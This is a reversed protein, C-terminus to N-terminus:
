YNRNAQNNKRPSIPTVMSIVRLIAAPLETLLVREEAINRRTPREIRETEATIIAPPGSTTGITLEMQNKEDTNM